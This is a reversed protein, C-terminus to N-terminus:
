NQCSSSPLWQGGRTIRTEPHNNSMPPHHYTISSIGTGQDGRPVTYGHANAWGHASSAKPYLFCKSAILEPDLKSWDDPFYVKKGSAIWKQNFQFHYSKVGEWAYREALEHLTMIYIHLSCALNCQLAAPALNTLIICYAAWAKFFPGM